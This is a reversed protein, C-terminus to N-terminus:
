YVTVAVLGAAAAVGWAGGMVITTALYGFPGLKADPFLRRQVLFGLAWAILVASGGALTVIVGEVGPAALDGTPASLNGAIDGIPVAYGWVFLTSAVSWHLRNPIWSVIIVVFAVVSWM